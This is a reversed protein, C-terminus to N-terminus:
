TRSGELPSTALWGRMVRLRKIRYCIVCTLMHRTPKDPGPCAWFPCQSREIDELTEDVFRRMEARTVERPQVTPQPAEPHHERDKSQTPFRQSITAVSM